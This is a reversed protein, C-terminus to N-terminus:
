YRTARRTQYRVAMANCEGRLALKFYHIAQAWSCKDSYLVALEVLTEGDDKYSEGLKELRSLLMHERSVKAKGKSRRAAAAADGSQPLPGAKNKCNTEHVHKLTKM